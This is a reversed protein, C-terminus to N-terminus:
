SNGRNTHHGTHLMIHLFFCYPFPSTPSPMLIRNTTLKASDKVMIYDDKDESTTVFGCSLYLFRSPNDKEVSLSLRSYGETRSRTILRTLLERGIGRGRWGPAIAIGVVPTAADVYGYSNEREDWSRRLVRGLPATREALRAPRGAAGDPSITWSPRALRRGGLPRIREAAKSAEFLM